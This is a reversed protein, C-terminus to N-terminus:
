AVRHGPTTPDAPCVYTTYEGPNGTDGSLSVYSGQQDGATSLMWAYPDDAGLAQACVWGSAGNARISGPFDEDGYTLRDVLTGAADFLNIQDNRGLNATVNEGIVTVDTLGWTTLFSEASDEALIVSEGPAVYGFASLDFTGSIASNDDYSWGTMNIGQAGTNTFEIFEGGVGSYMYETIRMQGQAPWSVCGLALAITLGVCRNMGHSSLLM